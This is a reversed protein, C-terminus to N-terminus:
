GWSQVMDCEKVILRKKIWSIHIFVLLAECVLNAEENQNNGRETANLM